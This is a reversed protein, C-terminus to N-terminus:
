STRSREMAMVDADIGYLRFDSAANARTLKLAIGESKKNVEIRARKLETTEALASGVNTYSTAEPSLIYSTQITPNDTAADRLDYSPYVARWTKLGSPGQFFRTEIVSAVTTGDADAKVAAAKEFTASLEGV